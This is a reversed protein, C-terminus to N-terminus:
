THTENDSSVAAKVATGLAFISLGVVLLLQGQPGPVYAESAAGIAVISMGIRQLLNDDIKPHLVVICSLLVVGYMFLQYLM